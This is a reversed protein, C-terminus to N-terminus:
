HKIGYKIRKLNNLKLNVFVSYVLITGIAIFQCVKMGIQELASIFFALQLHQCKIYQSPM